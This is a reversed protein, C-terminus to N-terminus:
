SLVEGRAGQKWRGSRQATPLGGRAHASRAPASPALRGAQLRTSPLAAWAVASLRAAADRGARRPAEEAARAAAAAERLREAAAAAREAAQPLGAEGVVLVAAAEPLRVAVADPGAAEPLRVAVADPGAAEVEPRRVAADPGAAPQREAAADQAAEV